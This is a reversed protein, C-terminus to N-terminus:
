RTNRRQELAARIRANEEKLTLIEECLEDEEADYRKFLIDMVQFLGRMKELINTIAPDFEPYRVKGELCVSFWVRKAELMFQKAEDPSMDCLHEILNSREVLKVMLLLRDEAAQAPNRDARAIREVFSVEREGAGARTLEERSWLEPLIHLVSAALMLDMEEETVPLRLEILLWGMALGHILYEAQKRTPTEMKGRLYELAACARPCSNERAYAFDRQWLTEIKEKM